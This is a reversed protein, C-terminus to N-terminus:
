RVRVEEKVKYMQINSGSYMVDPFTNVILSINICLNLCVYMIPKALTLLGMM